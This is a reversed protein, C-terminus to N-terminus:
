HFCNALLVCGVKLWLPLFQPFKDPVVKRQEYGNQGFKREVLINELFKLSILGLDHRDRLGDCSDCITFHGLRFPKIQNYPHLLM